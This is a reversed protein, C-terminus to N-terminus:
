FFYKSFKFDFEFTKNFASSSVRGYINMLVNNLNMASYVAM